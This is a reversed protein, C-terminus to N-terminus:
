WHRVTRKMMHRVNEIPSLYPSCAPWDLVCVKQQLLILGPLTSSFFNKSRVSRTKIAAITGECKCTLQAEPM